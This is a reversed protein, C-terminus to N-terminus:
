GESRRYRLLGFLINAVLMTAVLGFIGLAIVGVLSGPDADVMMRCARTKEGCWGHQGSLSSLLFLAFLGVVGFGLVSNAGRM